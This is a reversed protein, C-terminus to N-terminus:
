VEKKKAYKDARRLYYKKIGEVTNWVRAHDYRHKSKEIDLKLIDKAMENVANELRKVKKRNFLDM